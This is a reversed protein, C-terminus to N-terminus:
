GAPRSAPDAESRVPSDNRGASGPVSEAPKETNVRGQTRQWESALVNQLKRQTADLLGKWQQELMRESANAYITLLNAEGREDTTVHAYLYGNRTDIVYAELYSDVESDLFPVFLLPVLLVSAAVWANASTTVRNGYDFVLLVDCKARAALLRAKKISFAQRRDQWPNPADYRREGTMMLTPIRYTAGVGAQAQLMSEIEEVKSPDFAYYAVRVPKGLQPQAEFAKRVDEDNIEAAPDVEFQASSAPRYVATGCASTSLFAAVAAFAFARSVPFRM